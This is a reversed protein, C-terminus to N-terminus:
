GKEDLVDVFEWVAYCGPKRKMDGRLWILHGIQTRTSNFKYAVEPVSVDKNKKKLSNIEKNVRDERSQPRSQRSGKVVVLDRNLKKNGGTYTM